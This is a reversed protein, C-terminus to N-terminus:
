LVTIQWKRVEISKIERWHNTTRLRKSVNFLLSSSKRQRIWRRLLPQEREQNLINSFTLPANWISTGQFKRKIPRQFRYNSRGVRQAHPQYPPWLQWQYSYAQMNHAVFIQKCFSAQKLISRRHKSKQNRKQITRPKRSASYCNWM